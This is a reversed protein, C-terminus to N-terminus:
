AHASRDRAAACPSFTKTMSFSGFNPPVVARDPPQSQIGPVESAFAHPMLLAGDRAAGVKPVLRAVAEIALTDIGEDLVSRLRDIEEDCLGRDAEVHREHKGVIM